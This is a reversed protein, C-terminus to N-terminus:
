LSPNWEQESEEKLPFGGLSSLESNFYNEVGRILFVVDKNIAELSLISM